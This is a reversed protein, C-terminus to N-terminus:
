KETLGSWDERSGRTVLDVRILVVLRTATGTSSAWWLLYSCSNMFVDTTISLVVVTPCIGLLLCRWCATCLMVFFSLNMDLCCM